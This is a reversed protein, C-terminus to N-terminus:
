ERSFEVQSARERLALLWGEQFSVSVVALVVAITGYVRLWNLDMLRPRAIRVVLIIQCPIVLAAVVTHISPWALGLLEVPAIALAGAAFAVRYASARRVRPLLIYTLAPITVMSLWVASRM